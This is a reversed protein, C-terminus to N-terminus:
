AAAKSEIIPTGSQAPRPIDVSQASVDTSPRAEQTTPIKEGFPLKFEDDKHSLSYLFEAITDGEKVTQDAMRAHMVDLSRFYEGRHRNRLKGTISHKGVTGQSIYGQVTMPEKSQVNYRQIYKRVTSVPYASNDPLGPGRMSLQSKDNQDNANARTRKRPKLNVM